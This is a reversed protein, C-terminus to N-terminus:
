MIWVMVSYRLGKTVEKVEHPYIFNSPFVIGSGQKKEIVKNGCLVFEGGEYNDNLFILSTAHPYGVNQGHSHHIADIHQKMFGGETYRNLRFLTYLELKLDYEMSNAYDKGLNTFANRLQNFYLSNKPMWYEDMTVKSTGTNGGRNSFTSPKWKANKDWHNIINNCVESDLAEPYYYIFDSIPQNFNM